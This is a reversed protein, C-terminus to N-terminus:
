SGSLPRPGASTSCCAALGPEQMSLTGWARGPTVWKGLGLHLLKLIDCQQATELVREDRVSCPCGNM